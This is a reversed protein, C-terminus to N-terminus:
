RTLIKEIPDEPNLKWVQLLLYFSTAISGLAVFAVFWLVRALWHSEKYFMWLSLPLQTVYFDKVTAVLWPIQALANWEKFLNSQLSTMVVAHTTYLSMAGFLIMWGTKKM